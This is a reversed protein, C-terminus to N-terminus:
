AFIIYYLLKFESILYLYKIVKIAKETTIIGKRIIFLSAFKEINM